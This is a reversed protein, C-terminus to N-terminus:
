SFWGKGVGLTLVKYIIGINVPLDTVWSGDFHKLFARIHYM